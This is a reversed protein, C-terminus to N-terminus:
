RHGAQKASKAEKETLLMQLEGFAADRVLVGPQQSRGVHVEEHAQAQTLEREWRCLLAFTQSLTREVIQRAVFRWELIATPVGEELSPKSALEELESITHCWVIDTQDPSRDQIYEELAQGAPSGAEATGKSDTLYRVLSSSHAFKDGGHSRLELSLRVAIQSDGLLNAIRIARRISGALPMTEFDDLAQRVLVVVQSTGLTSQMPRVAM